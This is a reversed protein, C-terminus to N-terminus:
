IGRRIFREFQEVVYDPTFVELRKECASILNEALYKDTYLRYINEALADSDGVSSILGCNDQLIERVGPKSDTSAIPLNYYMAELLVTPLGEAPSSHVYVSAASYFNQVDYRAGIFKVMDEIRCEKAFEENGKRDPGDGVLVLKKDFGYKEKLISFAKIVTKQDKDPAMRGVMLCFDGYTSKLEDVLECDIIKDACNIPNYIKEKRINNRANYELVYEDNEESLCVLNGIDNYLRFFGPSIVDYSYQDGHLWAIKLNSDKFNQQVFTLDNFHGSFAIVIDTKELKNRYFIKYIPQAASLILNIFKFTASFVIGMRELKSYRQPTFNRPYNIHTIQVDNPLEQEMDALKPVLNIVNIIHGKAKLLKIYEIGVREIGGFQLGDFVFTIKM